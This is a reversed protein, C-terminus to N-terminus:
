KWGRSRFFLFLLSLPSFLPLYNCELIQEEAVGMQYDVLGFHAIGDCLKVLEHGLVQMDDVDLLTLTPPPHPQHPPQALIARTTSHQAQLTTLWTNNFTDWLKLREEYLSRDDRDLGPIRSSDDASVHPSQPRIPRSGLREANGLLYHSIHLLNCHTERLKGDRVLTFIERAKTQYTEYAEDVEPISRISDQRAGPVSYNGFNSPPLMQGQKQYDTSYGPQAYQASDFSASSSHYGTDSADRSTSFQQSQGTNFYQSQPTQPLSYQSSTSVISSNRALRQMQDQQTSITSPMTQQNNYFFSQSFPPVQHQAQNAYAMAEPTTYQPYHFGSQLASGAFHGPEMYGSVGYRPSVTTTFPAHTSSPHRFRAAMATAPYATSTTLQSREPYQHYMRQNQDNQDMGSLM